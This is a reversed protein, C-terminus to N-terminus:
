TAFDPVVQPPMSGRAETLQACYDAVFDPTPPRGLTRAAYGWLLFPHAGMCYLVGYRREILAQRAEDSLDFEALLAAPDAM